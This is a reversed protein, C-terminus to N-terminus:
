GRSLYEVLTHMPNRSGGFLASWRVRAVHRKETSNRSENCTTSYSM